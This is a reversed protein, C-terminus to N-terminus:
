RNIETVPHHYGLEEVPLPFTVKGFPSLAGQVDAALESVAHKDGEPAEPWNPDIREPRLKAM